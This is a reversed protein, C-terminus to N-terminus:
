WRKHSVFEEGEMEPKGEELIMSVVEKLNENLEEQTEGHSHAGPLGPIFGVYLGTVSCFEVIATITQM